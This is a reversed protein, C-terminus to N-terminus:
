KSSNLAAIMVKELEAPIDISNSYYWKCFEKMGAMAYGEWIDFMKRKNNLINIDDTEEIALIQLIKIPEGMNLASKYQILTATNSIDERSKVVYKGILVTITFLELNNLGLQKALHQYSYKNDEGTHQYYIDDTCIITGKDDNNNM